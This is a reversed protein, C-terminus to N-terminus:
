PGNGECRVDSTSYDVPHRGSVALKQRDLTIGVPARGHTSLCSPNGVDYVDEIACTAPGSFDSDKTPMRGICKVVVVSVGRLKVDNWRGIRRDSWWTDDHDTISEDLYDRGAAAFRRISSSPM